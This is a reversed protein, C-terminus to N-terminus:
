GCKYRKLVNMAKEFEKPAEEKSLIAYLLQKGKVDITLEGYRCVAIKRNSKFRRDPGGRKNAYRWTYYIINADQPPCDETYDTTSVSIEMDMYDVYAIGKSDYVIIGDPMFYLSKGSVKLLPVTINTEVWPLRGTGIFAVVRNVLSSAGANIKQQHSDSLYQSSLIGWIINCEAIKNFASVINEYYEYNENDFEYILDIRRRKTEWKATYIFVGLGIVNTISFLLIAVPNYLYLHRCLVIVILVYLLLVLYDYRFAKYSKTLADVVDSKYESKIDSSTASNYFTTNVLADGISSTLSNSDNDLNKRYYLGGSGAHIYSKGNSNIGVRFGKVGISTGIGRKSMNFRVPGMRASKKLYWSM